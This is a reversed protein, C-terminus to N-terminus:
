RVSLRSDPLGADPDEPSDPVESVPAFDGADPPEPVFLSEEPECGEDVEDGVVDPDLLGAAAGAPYRNEM